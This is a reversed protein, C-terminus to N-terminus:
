KVINRLLYSSGRMTGATTSPAGSEAISVLTHHVRKVPCPKEEETQWAAFVLQESISCCMNSGPEHKSLRDLPPGEMERTQEKLDLDRDEAFENLPTAGNWM